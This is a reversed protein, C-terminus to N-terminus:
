NFYIPNTFGLMKHQNNEITHVDLRIWKLGEIYDINFPEESDSKEIRALSGKNSEINVYLKVKKYKEAGKITELDWSLKFTLPKSVIEDGFFLDEWKGAKLVQINVVPGSSCQVNGQKIGELISAKDSTPSNVLTYINEDVESGGGHWDRGYVGTIRYGKNLLETWLAMNAKNEIDKVSATRTWVEIYDFVNYDDIHYTFYSGTSIPDGVRCPHAIGVVGGCKNIEKVREELNLRHLDRWEIYQELGLVVIHGYFTTLEIGPIFTLPYKEECINVEKSATITNHDTIALADLNLMNWAKDVLEELGHRADSHKTHTHLECKYWRM